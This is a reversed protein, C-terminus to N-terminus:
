DQRVVRLIECITASPLHGRTAVIDERKVSALWRCKVVSPKRLGSKVRGDSSWPVRVCDAPLPEDFRTSIAAVVFEEAEVLEDTGTLIVMPRRKANQGRPDATYVDVVQGQSLQQM